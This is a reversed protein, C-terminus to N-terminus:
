EAAKEKEQKKQILKGGFAVGTVTTFISIAYAYNGAYVIVTTIFVAYAVLLIFALRTISNNGKEDQLFGTKAM